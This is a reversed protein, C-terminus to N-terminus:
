MNKTSKLSKWITPDEGSTSTLKAKPIPGTEIVNLKALQPVGSLDVSLTWEGVLDDPNAAEVVNTRMFTTSLILVAIWWSVTSKLSIMTKGGYNLLGPNGM